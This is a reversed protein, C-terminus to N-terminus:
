LILPNYRLRAPIPMVARLCLQQPLHPRQPVYGEAPVVMCHTGWGERVKRLTPTPAPPTWHSEIEGAGEEGPM